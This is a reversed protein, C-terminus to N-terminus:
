HGRDCGRLRMAGRRDSEHQGHRREGVNLCLKADPPGPQRRQKRTEGGRMNRRRALTLHEQCFTCM